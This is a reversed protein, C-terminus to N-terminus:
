FSNTKKYKDVATTTQKSTINSILNSYYKIGNDCYEETNCLTGSDNKQLFWQRYESIKDFLKRTGFDKESSDIDSYFGLLEKIKSSLIDPNQAIEKIEGQRVHLYSIAQRNWISSILDTGDTKRITTTINDSNINNYREDTIVKSNEFSKLLSDLILSKGTGRGGILAVLNKNLDLSVSNFNVAEGSFIEGNANINKIYLKSFDDDPSNDQICVREEPECIIQKLGEFTPDAKIWTFRDIDTPRHHSDSCTILPLIMDINPFVINRYDIADAQGSTEFIDVYSQILDVKIQRQYSTAHKINEISNSKTGAHVTVVGGLKHILDAAEKFDVYVAEDGGNQSIHSTTLELQGALTTWVDNLQPLLSEPFIGIFHVSANGGLESRFEIGPLITIRGVSLETLEAIRSVDIVHHDTIAVLSIERNILSEIIKENSIANNSVDFSSPTHYHLDWRRWESGRLFESM